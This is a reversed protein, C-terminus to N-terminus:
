RSLMFVMISRSLVEETESECCLILGFCGMSTISSVDSLVCATFYRVSLTLLPLLTDLCMGSNVSQRLNQIVEKRAPEAERNRTLIGWDPLEEIDFLKIDRM